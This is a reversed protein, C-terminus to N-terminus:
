YEILAASSSWASIKAWKSVSGARMSANRGILNQLALYLPQLCRQFREARIHVGSEPLVQLFRARWKLKSLSSTATRLSSSAIRRIGSMSLM